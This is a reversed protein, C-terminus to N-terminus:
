ARGGLLLDAIFVDHIIFGFGTVQWVCLTNHPHGLDLFRLHTTHYKM